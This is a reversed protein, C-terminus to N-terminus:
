LMLRYDEVLAVCERWIGTGSGDGSFGYGFDHAGDGLTMNEVNDLGYDTDFHLHRM